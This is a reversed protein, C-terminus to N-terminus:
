EKIFIFKKYQLVQGNGDFFKIFILKKYKSVQGNGDIDFNEVESGAHGNTM